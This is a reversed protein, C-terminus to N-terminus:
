RVKDKIWNEFQIGMIRNLHKENHTVMIMEFQVATIGILLDFDPILNGQRRLRAKEKGFMELSEFIPVVQFLNKIKSVEKIHKDFQDNFYAGYSM